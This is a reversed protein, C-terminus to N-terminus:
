AYYYVYNHLYLYNTKIQTLVDNLSEAEMRVTSQFSKKELFFRIKFSTNPAFRNKFNSTKSTLAVQM